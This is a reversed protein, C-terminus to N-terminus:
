RNEPVDYIDYVVYRKVTGVANEVRRVLFHLKGSRGSVREHMSKTILSRLRHSPDEIVQFSVVRRLKDDFVRGYNTLINFKTVNGLIYEDDESKDRVNVYENTEADLTM